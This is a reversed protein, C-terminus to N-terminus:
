RSQRKLRGVATELSESPEIINYAEWFNEDFFNGVTKSLSEHENFSLRRSIPLVGGRRLDTVVMESTATYRTAFLRRRWDCAFKIENRIYNLYTKGDQTRYHVETYVEEPKFRMGAPKKRLIQSTAKEPNSVDLRMEIRTFSLFEKDIYLRGLYLPYPLSMAPSFRLVYHPRDDIFTQEEFAFHLYDRTEENLLVDQNKVIDLYVSVNPGGLIRVGLTDGPKTSLLERGRLVQVRDAVVDSPYPAKYISLVAEAINIFRRGKQATERYFGTLLCPEASYNVEIKRVAEAVLDAPKWGDVVAMPLVYEEPTLFYDAEAIERGHFPIKLSKYGLDSILIEGEQIDEDIKLLFYGDANTVTGIHSGMVSVSVQSLAKRNSGDKVTGSVVTFRHRSTDQQARLGVPLLLCLLWACFLSRAPLSFNTKM